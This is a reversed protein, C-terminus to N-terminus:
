GFKDHWGQVQILRQSIGNGTSGCQVKNINIGTRKTSIIEPINNQNVM